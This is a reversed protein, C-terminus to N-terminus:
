PGIDITQHKVCRVDKARLGEHIAAIRRADLEIMGFDVANLISHLTLAPVDVWPRGKLPGSPVVGFEEDGYKDSM